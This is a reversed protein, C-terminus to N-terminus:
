FLSLDILYLYVKLLPRLVFSCAEIWCFSLTIPYRTSLFYAKVPVYRVVDEEEDISRYRSARHGSVFGVEYPESSAPLASFGRLFSSIVSRTLYNHLPSYQFPPVM